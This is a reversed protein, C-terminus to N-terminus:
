FNSGVVEFALSYVVLTSACSPHVLSYHRHQCTHNYQLWMGFYQHPTRLTRFGSPMRSQQHALPHIICTCMNRFEPVVRM